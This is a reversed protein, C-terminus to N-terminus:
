DKEKGDRKGGGYKPCDNPLQGIKRWAKDCEKEICGYCDKPTKPEKQEGIYPLLLWLGDIGAM